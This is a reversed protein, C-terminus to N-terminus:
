KDGRGTLGKSSGMHIIAGQIVAGNDLTVPVLSVIRGRSKVEYHSVIGPRHVTVAFSVKLILKEVERGDLYLQGNGFEREDHAELPYKGEPLTDSGFTNLRRDACVNIWDIAYKELNLPRSEMLCEATKLDISLQTATECNVGPQLAMILGHQDQKQVFHFHFPIPMNDVDHEAAELLTLRQDKKAQAAADKTYSRAVFFGKQAHTSAVKESFIIIENKSVRSEWNKCEFIYISRYSSGHDIQVLIDIEHRVGDVVIIKNSEILFTDKALGPAASLIAHEISRVARELVDGKEKSSTM